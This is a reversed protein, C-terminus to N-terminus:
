FNGKRMKWFGLAIFIIIYLSASILAENTFLSFKFEMEPDGVMEAMDLYPFPFIDKISNLPYFLYHSGGILFRHLLALGNEVVLAYTYFLIISLGLSRFVLGFLMGVMGYGFCMILNRLFFKWQDFFELPVDSHIVVSFLSSILAFWITLFVSLIFLFLMKSLLFEYRKLGSLLNQRLTKYKYEMTIMYVGTFTIFFYVVWNNIYGGLEWLRSQTYLVELFPNGEGENKLGKIIRYVLHLAAPYIALMAIILVRMTNNKLYKSFELKILKMLKDM